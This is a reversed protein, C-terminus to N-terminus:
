FVIKSIILKLPFILLNRVISFKKQYSALQTAPSTSAFLKFSIEDQASGDSPKEYPLRYVRPADPFIIEKIGIDEIKWGFWTRTFCCFHGVNLFYIMSHGTALWM